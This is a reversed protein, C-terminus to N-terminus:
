KKNRINLNDVLFGIFAGCLGALFGDLFIDGIKSDNNVLTNFVSLGAGYLAFVGAFLKTNKFKGTFSRVAISKQPVPLFNLGDKLPSFQQQKYDPYFSNIQNVRM